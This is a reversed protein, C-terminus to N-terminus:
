STGFISLTTIDPATSTGLSINPFHVPSFLTVNFFPTLDIPSSAKRSQLLRSPTINSFVTNSFILSPANQPQLASLEITNGSETVSISLFANKSVPSLFIWSGSFSVSIPPPANQLQLFRFCTCSGGWNFSSPSPANKLQSFRVCIWSGAWNFLNPVSANLFQVDNSLISM